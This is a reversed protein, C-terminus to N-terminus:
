AGVYEPKRKELFANMGESADSTDFLERIRERELALADELTRDFGEVVTRKITGIASTAGHALQEAYEGTKSELEDAAFLRNLIGFAHAEGPSLQRGTIMMDLARSMGVLRPLRQTGGNGPLLGLTVEPVGLKYSGRAGFRLDCALAMELGGGLAHGAIQAIFVKPLEAIRALGRHATEIMEMNVDTDNETFVKVDAGASFFRKSASRLVVVKVGDDSGAEEIAASLEEMFARDYSNAPPEDLTIFGIAGDRSLDVSM